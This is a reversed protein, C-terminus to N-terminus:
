MGDSEMEALKPFQEEAWSRVRRVLDDPTETRVENLFLAAQRGDGYFAETRGSVTYSAPDTRANTKAILGLNHEVHDAVLDGANHPDPIVVPGTSTPTWFVGNAWEARITLHAYYFLKSITGKRGSRQCGPHHTFGSGPTDALSPTM